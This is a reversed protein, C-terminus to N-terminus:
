KPAHAPDIAIGVLQGGPVGPPVTGILAGGPYAYEAANNNIDDAVFWHHDLKNIAMGFPEGALHFTVPVPNPLAFTDATANQGRLDSSVALVDDNLDSGLGGPFLLTVGAIQTQVGCAGAPCSVSWLAGKDTTSDLDDFYVTGNSQITLFGGQIDNMMVFNGVFTGGNPGPLWTSLSGAAPGVPQIENSAIITGDPAVAVDIPYETGPTPDTYTNYPTLQGRHFVLINGQQTNAVFLDHTAPNVYVGYQGNLKAKIQGCPAQGHFKGSYIYILHFGFDSVYKLLGTAPCHDFSAFNDAM